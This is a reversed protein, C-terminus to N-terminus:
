KRVTSAACETVMPGVGAAEWADCVAFGWNVLQEQVTRSLRKLRTPVDALKETKGPPCDLVDGLEYDAIHSRIGWNTGDRHEQRGPDVKYSAIVQRKRALLEQSRPGPIATRLDITKTAAM